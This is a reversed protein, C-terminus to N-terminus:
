LSLRHINELHYTIRKEPGCHATRKWADEFLYVGSELGDTTYGAGNERWYAEHENSYIRVRKGSWKARLSPWRLFRM